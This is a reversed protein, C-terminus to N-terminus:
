IKKGREAKNQITETSVDELENNNWEEVAMLRGNIEGVTIKVGWVHYNEQRSTSNLEDKFYRRNRRLTEFLSYM